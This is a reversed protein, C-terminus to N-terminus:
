TQRHRHSPQGRHGDVPPRVGDGPPNAVDVHEDDGEKAVGDAVDAVGEDLLLEQVEAM